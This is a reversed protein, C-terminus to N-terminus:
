ATGFKLFKFAESNVLDGGVRKTTYFLVWGKSTFPDRLTRIGLRDVITYAERVNGFGISLSDAAKTPVDEMEVVPFNLIAQPQGPTLGPAWLYQGQGDKFKRIEGVLARNTVWVAGQRYAAKVKYCLDILKDAPNSAPWGGSVGTAIHEPTGWARTADATAATTYSFLGRPKNVGNGLIFSYNEQRSLYESVKRALWGEVDYAADDLLKQSIKPQAYQEGVVIKYTGTTPTTTETRAQTEGVWGSTVEANDTPGELSDTSITEITAYQRIPSTEYVKQIIRGSTDPLVWFGGAPDSGVFAAKAELERLERESVHDPGSRVWGMFAERHAKREEPTGRRMSLIWHRAQESLKSDLEPEAPPAGPMPLRKCETVQDQLRDMDTNIKALKEELLADVSGKTALQEIREDNASKFEHFAKKLDEVIQTLDPTTALVAIALMVVLMMLAGHGMLANM